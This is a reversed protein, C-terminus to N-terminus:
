ILQRNSKTEHCQRRKPHQAECKQTYFGTAGAVAAFFLLLFIYEKISYVTEMSMKIRRRSSDRIIAEPWNRNLILESVSGLESHDM